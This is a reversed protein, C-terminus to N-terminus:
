KKKKKKTNVTQKLAAGAKFKPVIAKKIKIPEGTQPNRATRAAREATEFTGFGILQVKDRAQLAESVAEVFAKVATDADKQTLGSKEAIKGVLEKRNM